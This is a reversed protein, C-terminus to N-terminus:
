PDSTPSEITFVPAVLATTLTLLCSCLLLCRHLSVIRGSVLYLGILLDIDNDSSLLGLYLVAKDLLRMCVRSVNLKDFSPYIWPLYCFLM